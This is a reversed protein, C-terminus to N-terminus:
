WFCQSSICETVVLYMIGEEYGSIKGNETDTAKVRYVWQANESVPFLDPPM